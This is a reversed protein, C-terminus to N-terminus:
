DRIKPTYASFAADEAYKHTCYLGLLLLINSFRLLHNTVHPKLLESIYATDLCNLAKYVM